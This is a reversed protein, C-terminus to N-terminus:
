GPGRAIRADGTSQRGRRRSSGAALADRAALHLVLVDVLDKVEELIEVDNEDRLQGLLHPADVRELREGVKQFLLVVRFLM